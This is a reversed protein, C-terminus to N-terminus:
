LDNWENSNKGTSDKNKRLHDLMDKVPLGQCQALPNSGLLEYELNRDKKYLHQQFVSNLEYRFMYFDDVNVDSIEYQKEEPESALVDTFALTRPLLTKPGHYLERTEQGYRLANFFERYTVLYDETIVVPDVNMAAKQAAKNATAAKKDPSSSAAPIAQSASLTKSSKDGRHMIAQNKNAQVKIADMILHFNNQSKQDAIKNLMIQSQVDVKATERAFLRQLRQLMKLIHLPTM